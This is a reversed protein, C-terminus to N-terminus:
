KKDKRIGTRKENWDRITKEKAQENQFFVPYRQGYNSWIIFGSKVFYFTSFLTEDLSITLLVELINRNLPLVLADKTLPLSELLRFFSEPYKERIIAKETDNLRGFYCDAYVSEYGELEALELIWQRLDTESGDLMLNPYQNLGDLVNEVFFPNIKKFQELTYSNM